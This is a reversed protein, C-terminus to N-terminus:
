ESGDPFGDLAHTDGGRWYRVIAQMRLQKDPHYNVHIMAPNARAMAAGDHRLVTFLYKSNMFVEYDLIRAHAHPSVKGPRRPAVALARAPRHSLPSVSGYLTCATALWHM